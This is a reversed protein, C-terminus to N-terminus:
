QCGAQENGPWTCQQQCKKAAEGFKRHYFCFKGKTTKPPHARQKHPNASRSQITNASVEPDRAAWLADAKRALEQHDKIEADVLQVRIDEPLRELFLQEFLLYPAHNGLLALMEDILVSPKSDGLPGTHFLRAAWEWKSLNFTGM